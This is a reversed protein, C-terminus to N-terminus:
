IGVDGVNGAFGRGALGGGNLIEDPSVANVRLNPVLVGASMVM